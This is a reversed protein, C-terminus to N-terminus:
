TEVAPVIAADVISFPIYVLHVSLSCERPRITALILACIDVVFFMAVTDEGPGVAAAVIAFPGIAFLV